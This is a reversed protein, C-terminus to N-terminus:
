DTDNGCEDDTGLYGVPFGYPPKKGGCRRQPQGLTREREKDSSESDEDPNSEQPSSTTRIAVDKGNIYIHFNVTVSMFHEFYDRLFINFNLFNM